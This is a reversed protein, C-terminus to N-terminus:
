SSAPTASAIEASFELGLARAWREWIDFSGPTVRQREYQCLCYQSFGAREAVARQSWPSKDSAGGESAAFAAHNNLKNFRYRSLWASLEHELRFDTRKQPITM